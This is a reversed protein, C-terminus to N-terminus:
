TIRGDCRWCFRRAASALRVVVRVAVPVARDREVVLEALNSTVARNSWM